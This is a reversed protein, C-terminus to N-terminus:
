VANKVASEENSTSDGEAREIVSGEFGAESDAGGQREPEM